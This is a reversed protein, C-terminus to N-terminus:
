ISIMKVLIVANNGITVMLVSIMCLSHRFDRVRASKTCLANVNIVLSFSLASLPVESGILHYVSRDPLQWFIGKFFDEDNYNPDYIIFPVSLPLADAMLTLSLQLTYM